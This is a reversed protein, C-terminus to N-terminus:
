SLNRNKEDIYETGRCRKGTVPEVINGVPFIIEKLYHAIQLREKKELPKILVFDGVNAKSDPDSAWCHKEWNIYVNTNEDLKMRQVSVKAAKWLSNLKIVKGVVTRGIENAM